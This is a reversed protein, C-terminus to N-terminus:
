KKCSRNRCCRDRSLPEHWRQLRDVATHSGKGNTERHLRNHKIDGQEDGADVYDVDIDDKAPGITNRGSEPKLGTCGAISVTM